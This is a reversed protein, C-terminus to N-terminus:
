YLMKQQIWQIICMNIETLESKSIYKNINYKISDNLGCPQFYTEMGYSSCNIRVFSSWRNSLRVIIFYQPLLHWLMYYIICNHNLITTYKTINHKGFMWKTNMGFISFFLKNIVQTNFLYTQSNQFINKWIVPWNM